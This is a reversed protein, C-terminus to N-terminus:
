NNGDRNSMFAIRSGVAEPPGADDGGTAGDDRPGGATDDGLMEDDLPTDASDGGCGALLPTLAILLALCTCFRMGM